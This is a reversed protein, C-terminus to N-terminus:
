HSGEYPPVAVTVCHEEDVAFGTYVSDHPYAYGFLMCMENDGVGEVITKDFTNNWTCSFSLGDAGSLDVSPDYLTMVGNDPDYGQSNLFRQGDLEGGLYSATFSTGLGHMHPLLTVINMDAPLTCNGTATYTSLPPIEFGAFIFGFPAMLKDVMSEEVTYWEYYPAVTLEQSSANLYHMRAVIEFEANVPFAHGEPFGLWETGEIQTSSAYIWGGGKIIDFAEGGIEGQEEAPCERIGEGTKPRTTVNGHHLGLSAVLRAGGVMHSPGSIELPFIYCPFVEEGPEMVYDPLQAEFGGVVNAPPGQPMANGQNEADIPGAVPEDAVTESGSCGSLVLL